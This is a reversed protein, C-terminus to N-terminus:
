LALAKDRAAAVAGADPEAFRAAVHGDPRLLIYDGTEARLANAIVGGDDPVAAVGGGPSKATGVALTHVPVDDDSLAALGQVFREDPTEPAFWLGKFEGPEDAQRYLSSGNVRMDAVAEGGETTLSSEGYVYPDSLRGTNVLVRAFPHRRALNLIATRLRAEHESEPAMFRSSRKTVLINYAAAPRREENYSDLLAEPAVGKLFAALKWALNEADQVGSNGGRGGFSSFAHAADGIFFVRGMRFDDVLQYYYEWPVISVVELDVDGGWVAKARAEAREPATEKKVDCDGLQFDLRWVDDAMIHKWVGKDNNFPADVWTYREAVVDQKLRVDTICWFDNNRERNPSIGLLQRISSGVGDAAIVWSADVEYPGDPTDVTLVVHDDKAEIGEVKNKWRLETLGLEEIRDVLYWEVYYQQINVFRPNRMTEDVAMDFSYLEDDGSMVRAVSWTRGKDLMRDVIGLRDFIDLTRQEYCIGRSAVGRVGITDDEDLVVSRIGRTALDCAMTLGTLGGGVIVVDHRIREGTEQERSRRYPFTPLEYAQM